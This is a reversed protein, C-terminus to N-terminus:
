QSCDTCSASLAVVLNMFCTHHSCSVHVLGRVSGCEVVFTMSRIHHGCSVHAFLMKATHGQTVAQPDGSWGRNTSCKTHCHHEAGCLPMQVELPVEPPPPCGKYAVTPPPVM